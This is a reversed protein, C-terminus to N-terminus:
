DYFTIPFDLLIIISVCRKKLKGQTNQQTNCSQTSNASTSINRVRKSNLILRRYMRARRYKEVKDVDPMNDQFIAMQRHVVGNLQNPQKKFKMTTTTKRCAEKSITGRTRSEKGNVM